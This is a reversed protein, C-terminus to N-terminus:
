ITSTKACSSSSITEYLSILEKMIKEHSYNSVVKQYGAKGMKEVLSQNSLLEVIRNAWQSSNLTCVYGDKSDSVLDCLPKTDSVIVPKVCSYAELIVLGFGEVLSPNLLVQSQNLLNIKEEPSVAGKFIISSDLGASKPKEM